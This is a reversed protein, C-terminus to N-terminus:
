GQGISDERSLSAFIQLCLNLRHVWLVLEHMVLTSIKLINGKRSPIAPHIRYLGYGSKGGEENRVLNKLLFNFM